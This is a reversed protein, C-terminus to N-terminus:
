VYNWGYTEDITLQQPLLLRIRSICTFAKDNFPFPNLPGKFPASITTCLPHTLFLLYSTTRSLVTTAGGLSIISTARGAGGLGIISTARGAGGLSINSTTRGAGGLGIISTARGAGGLGIISTARGAGGLGINSTTQKAGALGRSFSKARLPGVKVLATLLSFM